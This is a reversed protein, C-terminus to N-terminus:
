LFLETEPAIHDKEGPQSTFRHAAIQQGNRTLLLLYDPSDFRPDNYASWFAAAAAAPYHTASESGAVRESGGRRQKIVYIRYM